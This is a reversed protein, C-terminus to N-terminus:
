TNCIKNIEEFRKIKATTTKIMPEDTVIIKKVHKYTSLGSNIEKIDEWIKSELEEKTINPYESEVYEKNYVIKASVVLDDEKPFGFVMTEDVYILNSILTEIEEPYINKGNKLVIVNKKRGTVFTYGDKDMYGLDGTHFWGDKIVEKTLEEEEYYGLMVNPGKAIIEGIGKEDPNDIKMEINVLPVGISGIRKFKDNEAALVPATETLGYGQIVSIGFNTFAQLVEKDIAAAGSVALRMHGGLSDIIQKFVKRRIDIGFKLLFNCVKAGIKITNTKGMKEIEKVIKKHMSELLLPVCVYISVKYEKLNQAIYKIGDCFATTVGNSMFFFLGTSGFTHHLPLFALSVDTPYVKVMCNLGYINSVINEHSLMVAKSLSTTGSTYLIISMEMSNIEANIFSMDGNSILKEGETLLDKYQIFEEKTEDMCIYHKINTKNESKIKKMSDIYQDSFIIADSASRELLSEIEAEPLSRDLPVVIGTGNVTAFYAVAWEYRNSAIIAVRKNKLGLKILSTGLANIDEKLKKYTKNEYEVKDGNKHKIIFAINDGYKEASDYVLERLNELKKAEYLKQKNM